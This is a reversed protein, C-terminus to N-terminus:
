GFTVGAPDVGVAVLRPVEAMASDGFLIQAKALDFAAKVSMGHGLANYFAWSFRIAAEDDVASSMGVVCGVFQALVQAAIESHCANLVVCRIQGRAAEFVRALGQLWLREEQGLESSRELVMRGGSTSHGSFHVIDPKHRLLGDQIDQEGAAWSQQLEFRDGLSSRLAETVAKVEHDLRLPTTGAPNAALFLIRLRSPADGAEDGGGGGSGTVKMNQMKAGPSNNISVNQWNSM